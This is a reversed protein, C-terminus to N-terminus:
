RGRPGADRNGRLLSDHRALAAGMTDPQEEWLRPSGEIDTFLFTIPDGYLPM